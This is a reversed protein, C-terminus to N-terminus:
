NVDSWTGYAAIEVINTSDIAMLTITNGITANRLADGAANTLTLIVDANDPNLDLNQAALTVFTLTGGIWTSAEPLNFIVADGAAANNFVQGVNASTLTVPSAAQTKATVTATDLTVTGARDPLTIARDATADTPSLTTEFENATAGEFIIGNTTFTVANAADRVNTALSSLVVVGGGNPLNVSNDATPDIVSLTTEWGDATAGEFLLGNTTGSISNAADPANSALSSILATGSFNPLTFTIDATPDIPIISTEFANASAGEMVFSNTGFWVGNAADVGTGALATILNTETAAADRFFLSTTGGVDKVYLNGFNADPAAPASVEPLRIYESVFLRDIFGQYWYKATSGINEYSDKAPM